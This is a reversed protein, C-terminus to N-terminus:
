SAGLPSPCSQVEADEADETTPDTTERVREAAPLIVAHMQCQPHVACNTLGLNGGVIRQEGDKAIREVEGAGFVAAAFALAARARNQDITLRDSRAPLVSRQKLAAGDRCDLSELLVSTKM